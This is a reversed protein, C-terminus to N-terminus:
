PCKERAATESKWDRRPSILDRKPADTEPSLSGTGFEVRL